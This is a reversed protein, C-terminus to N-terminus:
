DGGSATSQLAKNPKKEEVTKINPEAISVLLMFVMIFYNFLAAAVIRSECGSNCKIALYLHFLTNCLMWCIGINSTVPKLFSLVFFIFYPIIFILWILSFDFIVNSISFVLDDSKKVETMYTFAIITLVNIISFGVIKQTPSLKIM